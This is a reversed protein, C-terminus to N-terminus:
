DYVVVERDLKLRKILKKSPVGEKSWGRCLYYRKKMFALPVLSRKDSSDLLEHTLRKPLSDMASTLGLRLNILRELTYGREGIKLFKGM